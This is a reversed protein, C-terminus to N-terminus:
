RTGTNGVRGNVTIGGVAVPGPKYDRRLQKFDPTVCFYLESGGEPHSRRCSEVFSLDKRARYVHYALIAVRAAEQDVFHGYRDINGRTYPYAIEIWRRIDSQEVYNDPLQDFPGDYYSNRGMGNAHVAVLIRRDLAEDRYFAFGTRRGVEVNESVRLFHEPVPRNDDLLYFFHRSERDFVLSFPMGSEDLIPGVFVEEERLQTPSPPVFGVDNLEFLVRKGAYSVAYLFDDLREVSVGDEASYVASYGRRDQYEGNDDFVFYGLHLKGEDRDAASLCLNGSLTRGAAHLTFYYYNETPYVKVKDGLSAFVTRFIQRPDEHDVDVSLGEIFSQNTTVAIAPATPLTSATPTAAHSPLALGFLLLAAWGVTHQSIAETRAAVSRM